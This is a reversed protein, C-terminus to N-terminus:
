CLVAIVNVLISSHNGIYIYIYIYIYILNHFLNKSELINALLHSDNPLADIDNTENYRYARNPLHHCLKM